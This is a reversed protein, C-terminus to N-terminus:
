GGVVFESVLGVPERAAMSPEMLLSAILPCLQTGRPRTPTRTPALAYLARLVPPTPPRPAPRSLCSTPPLESPPRSPAAFTAQFSCTPSSRPPPSPPPAPPPPAPSVFRYTM